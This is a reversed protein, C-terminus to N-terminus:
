LQLWHMCPLALGVASMLARMDEFVLIAMVAVHVRFAAVEQALCDLCWKQLAHLETSAGVLCESVHHSIHLAEGKKIRLM